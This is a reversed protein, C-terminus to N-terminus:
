IVRSFGEVKVDWRGNKPFGPTPTDPGGEWGGAMLAIAALLAGNGPLYIPLQETQFNHGSSSFTNKVSEISLADVALEAEGLRTATQALVPFDWGWATNWKWKAKTWRATERMVNDDILHTKPIFGLAM